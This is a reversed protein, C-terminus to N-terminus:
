AGVVPRNAECWGRYGGELSWLRTYGMRELNVVVLASRYGGGCYCVIEADFDPITKEIDREIVGKSLHMAKPLRGRDWEETERVDILYFPRGSNLRDNLEDATIECLCARAESCLKEFQPSHKKGM